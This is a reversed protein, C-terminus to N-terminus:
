PPVPTPDGSPDVGAERCVDPLAPFRRGFGQGLAKRAALFVKGARAIAASLARALIDRPALEAGPQDALFREGRENVLIAGEGRVAESILGLPRRASDLATPHFQVFEMDSLEAGARAALMVGQGYNGTPNTSTDYLGGIGGTALVIRSASVIATSDPTACLFIPLACM